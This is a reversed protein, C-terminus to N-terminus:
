ILHRAGKGETRREAHGLETTRMIQSCLQPDGVGSKAVEQNGRSWGSAEGEVGGGLHSGSTKVRPKLMNMIM